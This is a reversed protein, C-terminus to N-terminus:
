LGSFTHVQVISLAQQLESGYLRRKCTAEAMEALVTTYQTANFRDHVGLQSLLLRFHTLEGPVVYLWPALNLPGSFAVHDPPVFGSGVFVCPQNQLSLCAEQLESRPKQTLSQYIDPIAVALRQGTAETNVTQHLSGLAQLQSALM